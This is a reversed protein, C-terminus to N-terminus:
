YRKDRKVVKGYSKLLARCEKLSVYGDSDQDLEDILRHLKEKPVCINWIGDFWSM